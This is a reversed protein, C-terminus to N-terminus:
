IFSRVCSMSYPWPEFVARQKKQQVASLTWEHPQTTTQMKICFLCTNLLQISYFFYDMLQFRFNGANRLYPINLLTSVNDLCVAFRVRKGSHRYYTDTFRPTFGLASLGCSWAATRCRVTIHTSHCGCLSCTMWQKSDSCEPTYWVKIPLLRLGNTGKEHFGGHFYIAMEAMHARWTFISVNEMNSM